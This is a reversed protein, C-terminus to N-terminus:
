GAKNLADLMHQAEPSPSMDQAAALLNKAEVADKRYIAIRAQQVLLQAQHPWVMNFTARRYNRRSETSQLVRGAEEIKKMIEDALAANPPRKFGGPGYERRARQYAETVDAPSCSWHLGLVGFLDKDLLAPRETSKASHAAAAADSAALVDADATETSFALGGFLELAVLVDWAVRGGAPSRSVQLVSLDGQMASKVLRAHPGPFGLADAVSGVARVLRPDRTHPFVSAIDEPQHQALLARVVEVILHLVRGTHSLSPARPLETLEYTFRHHAMSKGLTALSVPSRAERGDVIILTYAPQGEANLELRFIGRTTRLWRLLLPLAPTKMDGETVSRHLPMALIGQVTLPNTVTGKKPFTFATLSSAPTTAPVGGTGPAPPAAPWPRELEDLVPRWDDRRAAQVVVTGRQAQAITVRVRSRSEVAGAALRVEIPTAPPPADSVALVAGVTLLDGRAAKLDEPGAFRLCDGSFYPPLATRLPAADINQTANAAPTSPVAPPTAPAPVPATPLQPTATVTLGPVSTPASAPPGGDDLAVVPSSAPAPTSAPPGGDDLAIVPSSAPVPASALPGGDDLAIVPSSPASAPPGGDDLAIVPSSPASAPPGGDDLAIVPSSAPAPASAPPGGDDLAIVPSSAPAPASAPPGGDDIAIAAATPVPARRHLGPAPMVDGDDDDGAGIGVLAVPAAPTAFPNHAPAVVVGAAAVTPPPTTSAPPAAFPNSAVPSVVAATAAFPNHAPRVLLAPPLALPGAVFRLTARGAEPRIVEADLAPMVEVGGAQLSVRLQELPGLRRDTRVIVVGRGITRDWEALAADRSAWHISGDDELVPLEGM